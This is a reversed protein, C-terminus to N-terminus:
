GVISGLDVATHGYQMSSMAFVQSIEYEELWRHHIFLAKTESM